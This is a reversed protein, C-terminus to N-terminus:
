ARRKAKRVREIARMSTQWSRILDRRHKQEARYKDDHNLRNPRFETEILSHTYEIADRLASEIVSLEKDNLIAGKACRIM